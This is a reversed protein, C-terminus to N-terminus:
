EEEGKLEAEAFRKMWNLLAIIENTVQFVEISSTGESVIWELIDKNKKFCEKFWRNLHEYLLKYARKDPNLKEESEAGFKSRYFALTNGLGNMQIFTSAKTVYPKYREELKSYYKRIEDESIERKKRSKMEKIIKTLLGSTEDIHRREDAKLSAICKWAYNARKQELSRLM